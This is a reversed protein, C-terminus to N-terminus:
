ATNLATFKVDGKVFKYGCKEKRDYESSTINFAISTLIIAEVIVTLLFVYDLADCREVGVISEKGDPGRLLMCVIM